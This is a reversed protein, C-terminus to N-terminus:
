RRPSEDNALATFVTTPDGFFTDTGNSLYPLSNRIARFLRNAISPRAEQIRRNLAAHRSLNKLAQKAHRRVEPNESKLLGLLHPIAHVTQCVGDRMAPERALRSFAEVADRKIKLNPDTLLDVMRSIFERSAILHGFYIVRKSLNFLSGAAYSKISGVEGNTESKILRIAYEIIESDIHQQLSESDTLHFFIAAAHLQVAKEKSELLVKLKEIFFLSPEIAHNKALYHMVEVANIQITKNFSQLLNNVTTFQLRRNLTAGPDKTLGNIAVIAHHATEEITLLHLLGPICNKIPIMRSRLAQNGAVSAFVGAADGAALYNPSRTDSTPLIAALRELCQDYEVIQPLLEPKEALTNLTAAAHCVAMRNDSALVAVVHALIRKLQIPDKAVNLLIRTAHTKEIPRSSRLLPMLNLFCEAIPERLIPARTLLDLAKVALIRQNEDESTLAKMWTPIGMPYGVVTKKLELNQALRCILDAVIVQEKEHDPSVLLAIANPIFTAYKSAYGELEIEKALKNLIEAVLGPIKPHPSSLLDILAQICFDIKGIISCLEKENALYSLTEAAREQNQQKTRSVKSALEAIVDKASEPSAKFLDKIARAMNLPIYEGSVARLLSESQSTGRLSVKEPVRGAIYKALLHTM